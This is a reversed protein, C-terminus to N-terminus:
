WVGPVLRSRVQAAYEPYGPLEEQLVKDELATRVIFPVVFVGAVIFAWYSGLLLPVGLTRLSWAAYGPHRVVRYPGTTVVQHGRERQIRIVASFFRNVRMSWFLGATGLAVLTLGLLIAWEPLPLTWGWRHDLGPVILEASTLIGILVVFIRDWKKADPRKSMREELLGEDFRLPGYLPLITSVILIAM